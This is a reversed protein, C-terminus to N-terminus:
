CQIRKLRGCISAVLSANAYAVAEEAVPRAVVTAVVEETAAAAQAVVAIMVVVFMM